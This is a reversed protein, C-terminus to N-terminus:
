LEDEDDDEAESLVGELLTEGHLSEDSSEDADKGAAEGQDFSPKAPEPVVVREQRKSPASSSDEADEHKRKPPSQARGQIDGFGNKTTPGTALASEFPNIRAPLETKPPQTTSSDDLKLVEAEAGDEEEAAEGMNVYETEEELDQVSAVDDGAVAAVDSRINTRLIELAQDQPYLQTLHPLISAYRRGRPDTFPNLVSAVM